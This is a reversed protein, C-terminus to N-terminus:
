LALFNIVRELEREPIGPAIHSFGNYDYSIKQWGKESIGKDFYAIYAESSRFNKIALSPTKGNAAYFTSIWSSASQAGVATFKDPFYGDSASFFALNQGHAARLVFGKEYIAKVINERASSVYNDLTKIGMCVLPYDDKHKKFHIGAQRPKFSLANAWSVFADRDARLDISNKTEQNIEPSSQMAHLNIQNLSISLFILLFINANNPM